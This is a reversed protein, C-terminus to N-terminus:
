TAAAAGGLQAVGVVLALRFLFDALQEQECERALRAATFHQKGALMELAFNFVVFARLLGHRLLFGVLVDDPRQEIRLFEEKVM